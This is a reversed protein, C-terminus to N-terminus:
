LTSRPVCWRDWKFGPPGDSTTGGHFTAQCGEHKLFCETIVTGDPSHGRKCIPDNTALCRIPVGVCMNPYYACLAHIMDQCEALTDYCRLNDHSVCHLSAAATPSSNAADNGGAAADATVHPQPQRAGTAPCGGGIASALFLVIHEARAM